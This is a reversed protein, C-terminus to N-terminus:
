SAAGNADSLVILSDEGAPAIAEEATENRSFTLNPFNSVSGTSGDSGDVSVGVVDESSSLITGDTDPGTLSTLKEDLKVVLLLIDNTEEWVGLLGVDDM